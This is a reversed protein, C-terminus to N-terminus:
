NVTSTSTAHEGSRVKLLRSELAAICAALHILCVGASTEDLMKDVERLRELAQVLVTIEASRM